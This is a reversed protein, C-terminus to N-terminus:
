SSVSHFEIEPSEHCDQQHGHHREGCQGGGTDGLDRACGPAYAQAAHHLGTFAIHVNCVIKRDAFGYVIRLDHFVAARDGLRCGGFNGLALTEFAPILSVRGKGKSRNRCRFVFRYRYFGPERVYVIYIEHGHVAVHKGGCLRDRRIVRHRQRIVIFGFSLANGSPLRFVAGKGRVGFDRRISGNHGLNHIAVPDGEIRLAALHKRGSIHVLAVRQVQAANTRRTRAIGKLSPRFSCVAAYDRANRRVAVYDQIGDPGRRLHIIGHDIPAFVGVVRIVAREQAAYGLFVIRAFGYRSRIRNRGANLVSIIELEDAAILLFYLGVARRNHGHQAAAVLIGKGKVQAAAPAMPQGHTTLRIRTTISDGLVGDLGLIFGVDFALPGGNGVKFRVAAKRAPARRLTTYPSSGPYGLPDIHGGIQAALASHVGLIVCLIGVFEVVHEFAEVLGAALVALFTLPITFHIIVSASLIGLRYHRIGVSFEVGLFDAAHGGLRYGAVPDIPNAYRVEIVGAVLVSQRQIVIASRRGRLQLIARRDVIRTRGATRIAETFVCEEPAPVGYIHIVDTFRGGRIVERALGHGGFVHGQKGIPFLRLHIQRHLIALLIGVFLFDSRLNEFKSAIGVGYGLDIRVALPNELPNVRYSPFGIGDILGNGLIGGDPGNKSAIGILYRVHEIAAVIRRNLVAPFVAILALGLHQGAAVRAGRFALGKGVPLVFRAVHITRALIEGHRRVDRQGRDIRVNMALDGQGVMAIETRVLHVGGVFHGVVALHGNRFIGLGLQRVPGSIIEQAPVRIRLCLGSFKGRARRHPQFAGAVVQVGDPFGRLLIVGHLEIILVGVARVGDVAVHGFGTLGLRPFGDAYGVLILGLGLVRLIDEVPSIAVVVQAALNGDRTRQHQLQVELQVGRLVGNMVIQRAGRNLHGLILGAGHGDTLFQRRLRRRLCGAHFARVHVFVDRVLLDGNGGVGVIVDDGHIVGLVHREGAFGVSPRIVAAFLFKGANGYAAQQVAIGPRAQAIGGLANVNASVVAFEGAFEGAGRGEGIRIFVFNVIIIDDQTRALQGDVGVGSFHGHGDGAVM